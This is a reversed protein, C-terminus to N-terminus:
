LPTAPFPQRHGNQRVSILRGACASCLKTNPHTEIIEASIEEGCGVCLGFTGQKIRQITDRIEILPQTSVFDLLRYSHIVSILEDAGADSKIDVWRVRLDTIVDQLTEHWSTQLRTDLERLLSQEARIKMKADM